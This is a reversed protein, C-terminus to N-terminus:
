QRKHSKYSLWRMESNKKKDQCLMDKGNRLLVSLNDELRREQKMKHISQKQKAQNQTKTKGLVPIQYDM